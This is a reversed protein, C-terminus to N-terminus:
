NNPVFRTYLPVKHVAWEWEVPVGFKEDNFLEYCGETERAKMDKLLEDSFFTRQFDYSECIAIIEKVMNELTTHAIMQDPDSFVYIYKM